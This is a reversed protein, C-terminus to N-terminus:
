NGNPFMRANGPQYGSGPTLFRRRQERGQEAAAAREADVLAQARGNAAVVAVLDALQQAQLALLQNGAQTAQLAGTAGQSQGVLAAMEARNTDINGVVGAQVRLADQLGGVTNQWRSRADSVLRQDSTSLSINSYQSQFAQDIQQVDFAIRQAQGLLAQTRQVSQQLQQLSSYPLSALNRAQNILMQAENQLSQIQNNIQELARAASLVNQVYNTPDYVVWQAAAPTVFVPSFAVPLSLITAAFLAARSRRIMM